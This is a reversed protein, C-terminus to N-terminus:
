KGLYARCSRVQHHGLMCGSKAAQFCEEIAWRTGPSATPRRANL